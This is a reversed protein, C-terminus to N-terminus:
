AGGLPDCVAQGATRARRDHHERSYVPEAGNLQDQRIQLPQRRIQLTLLELVAQDAENAIAPAVPERM